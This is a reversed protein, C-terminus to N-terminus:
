RELKRNQKFTKETMHELCKPVEYNRCFEYKETYCRMRKGYFECDIRLCFIPHKM